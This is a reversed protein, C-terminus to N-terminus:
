VSALTIYSPIRFLLELKEPNQVSRGKNVFLIGYTLIKFINYFTSLLIRLFLCGTQMGGGNYFKMKRINKNNRMFVLVSIYSTEVGASM